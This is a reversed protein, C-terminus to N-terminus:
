MWEKIKKDIFHIVKVFFILILVIVSLFLFTNFFRNSFIQDKFSKKPEKYLADIEDNDVLINKLVIENKVDVDYTQNKLYKYGNKSSHYTGDPYIQLWDRQEFIVIRYLVKGSKIDYFNINGFSDKVIIKTDNDYFIGNGFSINIRNFDIIEKWSRRKQISKDSVKGKIIKINKGFKGNILDIDRIFFTGSKGLSVIQTEKDNFRVNYIENEDGYATDLVKTNQINKFDLKWLKITRDASATLMYKKDKSLDFSNVVDIHEKKHYIKKNKIDILQLYPKAKNQTAYNGDKTYGSTVSSHIIFNENLFSFADSSDFLDNEIRLTEKGSKMDFIQMAGNSSLRAFKDQTPHLTFKATFHERFSQGYDKWRKTKIDLLIFKGDDQSFLVRNKRNSTVRYINKLPVKDVDIFKRKKLDYNYITGSSSIIALKDNSIKKLWSARKKSSYDRIKKNTSIQALQVGELSSAYLFRDDDLFKVTNISSHLSQKLGFSEVHLEKKIKLTKYDWVKLGGNIGTSVIYKFSPSVELSNVSGFNSGFYSLKQSKIDFVGLNKDFGGILKDKAKDLKLQYIKSYEDDKSLLVKSTFLIKNKGLDLAKIQKSKTGFYIIHNLEDYCISSEEDIGDLKYKKLVNLEKNIEFVNGTKDVILATSSNKTIAKIITENSLKKLKRTKLKKNKSEILAIKGDRLRAIIYNDWSSLAYIYDEIEESKSILKSSNIDINKLKYLSQLENTYFSKKDSALIFYGSSLINYQFHNFLTKDKIEGKTLYTEEITKKIKTTDKNLYVDDASIPLFITFTLFIILSIYKM